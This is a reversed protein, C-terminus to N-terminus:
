PATPVSQIIKGAFSVEVTQLKTWTDDTSNRHQKAQAEYYLKITKNQYENSALSKFVLVYSGVKRFGNAEEEKEAGTGSGSLVFEPIKYTIQKKDASVIRNEGFTIPQAGPAIAIVAGDKLTVDEALYLEFEINNTMPASTELVITERVDASKNGKNSLSIDVTIGEGPKFNDTKSTEISAELDLSGLTGESKHDVRDMFWAFSGVTVSVVTLIALVFSITRKSFKM